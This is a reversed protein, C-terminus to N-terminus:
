AKVVRLEVSVFWAPFMGAWRAEYKRPYRNALRSVVRNVLTATFILTSREVRFRADSYFAFERSSDFYDFSFRSFLPTPSPM